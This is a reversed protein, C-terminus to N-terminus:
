NSQQVADRDIKNLDKKYKEIFEEFTAEPASSLRCSNYQPIPVMNLEMCFRLEGREPLKLLCSKMADQDEDSLTAGCRVLSRIFDETEFQDRAALLDWGSGYKSGETSLSLGADLGVRLAVMLQGPTREAPHSVVAHHLFNMGASDCETVSAGVKALLPILSFAHRQVAIVLFPTSDSDLPDVPASFDM